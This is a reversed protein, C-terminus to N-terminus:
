GWAFLFETLAKLRHSGVAFMAARRRWGNLTALRYGGTRLAERELREHMEELTSRADAGRVERDYDLLPCFWVPDHPFREGLWRAYQPDLRWVPATGDLVPAPRVALALEVTSLPRLSDNAPRLLPEAPSPRTLTRVRDM